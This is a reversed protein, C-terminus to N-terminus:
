CHFYYMTPVFEGADEAEWCIGHSFLGEFDFSQTLIPAMKVDSEGALLSQFKSQDLGLMALMYSASFVKLITAKPSFQRWKSM